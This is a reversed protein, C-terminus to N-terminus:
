HFASIIAFLIYPFRENLFSLVSTFYVNESLSLLLVELDTTPRCLLIFLPFVCTFFVVSTFRPDFFHILKASKVKDKPYHMVDCVVLRISPSVSSFKMLSDEFVSRYFYLLFLIDFFTFLNLTSFLIRVSAFDAPIDESIDEM